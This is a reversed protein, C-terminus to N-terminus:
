LRTAAEGVVLQVPTTLRARTARDDADERQEHQGEHHRLQQELAHEHEAVPDGALVDRGRHVSVV